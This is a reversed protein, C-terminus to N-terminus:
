NIRIAIPHTNPRGGPYATIYEFMRDRLFMLPHKFGPRSAVLRDKEIARLAEIFKRSFLEDTSLKDVWM